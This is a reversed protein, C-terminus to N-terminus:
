KSNNNKNKELKKTFKKEKKTILQQAKNQKGPRKEGL